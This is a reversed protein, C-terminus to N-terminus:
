PRNRLMEIFSEIRTKSRGDLETPRDGELLLVPVNLNEKVLIEEMQRFCFSQVYHIIGSINRKRIEHKIDRLRVQIGYPYTYNYYTEALNETKNPMAFQRQVENYVVSCGLADIFSYLDSIITPVGIYGLRIGNNEPERQELSDIFNDVEIEYEEPNGNMDSSTVQYIHNEWGSVLGGKWTMRDIYAIKKRIKDLKEKVRLGSGIDTNLASAFKKLECEIASINRPYPYAFPITEIGRSQLIEMLAHTNSCDGQTVGVVQKIGNRVAATYIGKIWACLNHPFGAMEADEVWEAPDDASIFENNLDVPSFGAAYLLEIPVTTTIGIKTM